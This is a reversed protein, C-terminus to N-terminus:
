KWGGYNSGGGGGRASTINVHGDDGFQIKRIADLRDIRKELRELKAGIRLNSIFAVVAVWSLMLLWAHDVVFAPGFAVNLLSAVALAVFFLSIYIMLIKGKRNFNKLLSLALLVLALVVIVILLARYPPGHGLM